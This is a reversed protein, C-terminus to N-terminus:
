KTKPKYATVNRGSVEFRIAGTQELLELLENLPRRKDITGSFRMSAISPDTYDIEFDYWLSMKGAIRQMTWGVFWVKGDMWGTIRQVDVETTQMVGGETDVMCLQGPVLTAASNESRVEVSGSVLAAAMMNSGSYAEVNFETGLATVRYEGVHVHFPRRSDQAVDFFAEGDLEIDRSYPGFYDPFRITTNSNLWVHTGDPLVISYSGGRPVALTVEPVVETPTSVSEYYITADLTDNRLTSGGLSIKPMNREIGVCERGDIALTMVDNGPLSYIVSKGHWPSPFIVFLAVVAAVMFGATAVIIKRRRDKRPHTARRIRHWLSELDFQRVVSDFDSQESGQAYLQGPESTSAEDLIERVREAAKGIARRASTDNVM